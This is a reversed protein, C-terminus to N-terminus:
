DYKNDDMKVCETPDTRSRDDYCYKNDDIKGTETPDATPPIGDLGYPGAASIWEVFLGYDYKNDNRKGTKESVTTTPYIGVYKGVYKGVYLKKIKKIIIM